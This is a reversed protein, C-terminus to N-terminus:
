DRGPRPPSHHEHPDDRHLVSGSRAGSRGATRPRVGSGSPRESLTDNPVHRRCGAAFGTTDSPRGHWAAGAIARWPPSPRAGPRRHGRALAAIAARWPPSPRAGPRRHGRALAAIAARWPPSPRAGPRRHGRVLAAMAASAGRAVMPRAAARGAPKPETLAPKPRPPGDPRVHPIGDPRGACVLSVHIGLRVDLFRRGAALRHFSGRSCFPRDPDSRRSRLIQFGDCWGPNPPPVNHRAQPSTWRRDSIRVFEPSSQQAPPSPAAGRHRAQLVIATPHAGPRRRLRVLEDSAQQDSHCSKFRRGGRGSRPASGSQAVSRRSGRGYLAHRSVALRVPRTGAFVASALGSVRLPGTM